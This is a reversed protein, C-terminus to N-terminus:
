RHTRPHAEGLALVIVAAGILAFVLELGQYGLWVVEFLEFTILGAGAGISVPRAYKHEVWQTAAAVAFGAGVLTMLLVGPVRWDAFPSGTLASSQAALLSGDPNIVLLLGGIIGLLAVTSEIAFLAGAATGVRIHAPRRRAVHGFM